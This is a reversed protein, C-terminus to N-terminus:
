ERSMWQWGGFRSPVAAPNIAIAGTRRRYPQGPQQCVSCGLANILLKGQFSWIAAAEIAASGYPGGYPACEKEAEFELM